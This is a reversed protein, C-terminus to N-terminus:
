DDDLEDEELVDDIVIEDGFIRRQRNKKVISTISGALAYYIPIAFLIVWYPHWGAGNPILTGCFLYASLAVFVIPFETAKRKAICRIIGPIIDFTFFLPWMTGWYEGDIFGLTLYVVIIILISVGELCNAIDKWLRERKRKRADVKVANKYSYKKGNIYVGGDVEVYDDKRDGENIFIGDKSIEVYAGSRRKRKKDREKSNHFEKKSEEESKAEYVEEVSLKFNTLDDLSVNYLKSLQIMYDISPSSTGTEWNIISQRSVNLETALEEQSYNNFKRFEQLRKGLNEEM